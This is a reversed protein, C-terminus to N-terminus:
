GVPDLRELETRARCASQHRRQCDVGGRREPQQLHYSKTRHWRCVWARCNRCQGLEHQGHWGCEVCGRGRETWEPRNGERHRGLEAVAGTATLVPPCWSGDSLQGEGTAQTIDNVM